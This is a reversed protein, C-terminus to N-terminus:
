IVRPPPTIVDYFISHINQDNVRPFSKERVEEGIKLGSVIVPQGLSYDALNGPHFYRANDDDEDDRPKDQNHLVVDNIYEALSNIDNIRHGDAAYADVEDVQAIFMFFNIHSILLLFALPKKLM